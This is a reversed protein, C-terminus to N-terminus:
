LRCCNTRAKYTVSDVNDYAIWQEDRYMYPVAQENLWVSTWGNDDHRLLSCIQVAVSACRIPASVELEPM